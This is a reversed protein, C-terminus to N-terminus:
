KIINMHQEVPLVVQIRFRRQDRACDLIMLKVDKSAVESYMNVCLVESCQM